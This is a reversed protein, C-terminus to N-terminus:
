ERGFQRELLQTKLTDRVRQLLELERKEQFYPRREEATKLDRDLAEEVHKKADAAFAKQAAAQAELGKMVGEVREDIQRRVTKIGTALAKMEPRESGFDSSRKAYDAESQNLEGLLRVLEQDAVLGPLAQTLESFSKSKLITLQDILAQSQAARAEATIREREFARVTESEPVNTGDGNAVDSPIALQRRLQYVRTQQAQVREEFKAVREFLRDREISLEKVTVPTTQPAQAPQKLPDAARTFTLLCLVTIALALALWALRSAPKFQSIMTIRRKIEQKSNLVPVLSPCFPAASFADLLKILTEGYLRQEECGLARLVMADCVLERDARLQRLAVWVLPNFWHVAQICILLWNLLIDHRKVHALEHLLVMRLEQPQLQELCRRPVLLQPQLWGHLAPTSGCDTAIPRVRRRVGLDRKCAELLFVLASDTAPPELKLWSSFRLHERLIFSLIAFVGAIWITM